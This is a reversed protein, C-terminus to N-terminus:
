RTSGWPKAHGQARLGTDASCGRRSHGGWRPQKPFEQTSKQPKKPREQEAGGKRIDEEEGRRQAVVSWWNSHQGTRTQKCM